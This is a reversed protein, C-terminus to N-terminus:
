KNKSKFNKIITAGLDKSNVKVSGKNKGGVLIKYKGAKEKGKSNETTTLGGIKYNGNADTTTKGISEGNKGKGVVEVEVGSLSHSRKGEKINGGVSATTTGALLDYTVGESLFSSANKSAKENAAMVKFSAQNFNVLVLGASIVLCLGIFMLGTKKKM